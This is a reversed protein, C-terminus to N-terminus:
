LLVFVINNLAPGHARDATRSCPRERRHLHPHHQRQLPGSYGGAPVPGKGVHLLDACVPPASQPPVGRGTGSRRERVAAEYGALHQLPECAKGDADRVGGRRHNKAKPILSMQEFQTISVAYLSIFLAPIHRM